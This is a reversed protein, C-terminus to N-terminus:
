TKQRFDNRDDGTRIPSESNELVGNQNVTAASSISAPPTNHETSYHLKLATENPTRFRSGNGTPLVAGNLSM